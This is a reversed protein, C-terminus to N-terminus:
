TISYIGNEDRLGAHIGTLKAVGKALKRGADHDGRRPGRGPLQEAHGQTREIRDREVRWQDQEAHKTLRMTKGQPQGGLAIGDVHEVLLLFRDRVLKGAGFAVFPVANRRQGALGPHRHQRIGGHHEFALSMGPEVAAIVLDENAPYRRHVLMGEIAAPWQYEELAAVPLKGARGM